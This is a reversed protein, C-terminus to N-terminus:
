FNTEKPDLRIFLCRLNVVVRENNRCTWKSGECHGPPSNGFCLQNWPPDLSLYVLRATYSPFLALAPATSPVQHFM